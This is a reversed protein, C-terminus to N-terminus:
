GCNWKKLSNRSLITQNCCMNSKPTIHKRTSLSLIVVCSSQKQSILIFILKSSHILFLILPQYWFRLFQWWGSMEAQGRTSLLLVAQLLSPSTEPYSCQRKSSTKIYFRSVRVKGLFFFLSLCGATSSKQVSWQKDSACNRSRLQYLREPDPSINLKCHQHQM